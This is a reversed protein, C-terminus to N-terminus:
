EVNKRRDFFYLTYGEAFMKYQVQLSAASKMVSKIALGPIVVLPKAGNGFQAYEMEFGDTRICHVLNESM